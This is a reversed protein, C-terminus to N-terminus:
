ATKRTGRKSGGVFAVEACMDRVRDALRADYLRGLERMPVNSTYITPLGATVRENIVTHLDGRFAETADRVGIDDIVAFPAAMVARQLRYYREAAPAAIEDPVRPRNFANFDTQWENVDFFIAQRELPQRHRQISGIYHAILWANLVAIATTTKGTGPEASYFYLSKIREAAADFQRNFTAIYADVIEYVTAQDKRAPSSQVTVLRYDEPTGAAGVRGGKGNFGHMAIYSPCLRSCAETDANRCPEQLICLKSHLAVVESIYLM